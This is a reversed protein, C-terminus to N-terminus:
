RDLRQELEEAAPGFTVRGDTFTVAPVARVLGTALDATLVHVEKVVRQGDPNRGLHIVADLAAAVQAHLAVRGLGGLAGLAELRAPVSAASNAHVTGCGGEHGTNLATLLDSLEGGRVEGLVVRDPRMRLSQRVLDTLSVAGAGEANPHRAELRVVHPHDPNLERSDEIILVREAPDVCGLLAGLITTKGTGTGGSVLFALKRTVMQRLLHAGAPPISGAAVVDDLSFRRRAPLRLSLCTGPAALTQLIAHVRTGDALRADVFPSGEDLRRGVSAALRMALKRVEDDSAFQVHSRELGRGRDVFVHDPGNVVVDTVDADRMLEELPGAGLSDRRLAEMTDRVLADTVPHGLKRIIRAVDVPAYVGGGVVLEDRVEAVLNDVAKVSM